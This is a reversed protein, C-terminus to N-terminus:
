PALRADWAFGFALHSPIRPLAPLSTGKPPLLAEETIRWSRGADDVLNTRDETIRVFAVGGRAYARADSSLHRVAAVDRARPALPVGPVRGALVSRRTPRPLSSLEDANLARLPAEVARLAAELDSVSPRLPDGAAAEIAASWASGLRAAPHAGVDVFVADLDGARPAAVGASELTDLDVTSRQAGRRGVVIRQKPEFTVRSRGDTVGTPFMTEPSAFYEGYAAGASYDRAHGTTRSITTTKPHRATWEGWTTTTVPLVQLRSAKGALAGSVPEGTLQDWLTDTGRDYMLKNSNFLLGSSGFTTREGDLEARYLVPAGCLTCWSLAFPVDGVVDNVMEHWDLIETPYAHAEGGFLVGFVPADPGLEAAGAAPIRAPDVLAPIGDVKVGGWDVSGLDVSAEFAPGIFRRFEPDVRTALLEGKFAAYDKPVAANQAGRRRDSLTRWPRDIERADEGIITSLADLVRYWESPTEAFALLDLLPAIFAEDGSAAVFAAERAEPEVGPLLDMVGDATPTIIPAALVGLAILPLTM